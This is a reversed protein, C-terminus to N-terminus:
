PKDGDYPAPNGSEDLRFTIRGRLLVDDVATDRVKAKIAADRLRDDILLKNLRQQTSNLSEDKERLKAEYDQKMRQTREVLLEEIKGEDILKKDKAKRAEEELERYRDPDVDKFREMEKKLKSSLKRESELVHKLGKVDEDFEVGEADLRFKGDEGQKYHERIGEPVDDLKELVAKLTM